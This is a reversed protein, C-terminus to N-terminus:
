VKAKRSRWEKFSGAYIGWVKLKPSLTRVLVPCVIIEIALNLAFTPLLIAIASEATFLAPLVTYQWLIYGTGAFLSVAYVGILYALNRKSKGEAVNRPMLLWVLFYIIFATVAEFVGLFGLGEVFAGGIFAGIMSGALGSLGFWIPFVGLLVIPLYLITFNPVTVLGSLFFFIAYIAASIAMISVQKATLNM